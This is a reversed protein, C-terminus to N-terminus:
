IEGKTALWERAELTNHDLKVGRKKVYDITQELGCLVAKDLDEWALKRLREVGQYDRAPEISDAVYIIKELRSMNARGTTHYRVANLVDQDLIGYESEMLRAAIVGHALSENDLYYEPLRFDKIYQNLVQRDMGRCMDHFLAAVAAKKPDEGYKIALEVATREVGETHSRRGKSLGEMVEEAIYNMTM